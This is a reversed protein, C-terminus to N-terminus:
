IDERIRKEDNTWNPKLQAVTRLMSKRFKAQQEPTFAVNIRNTGNVGDNFGATVESLNAGVMERASAFGAEHLEQTTVRIMKENM